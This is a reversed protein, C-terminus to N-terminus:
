NRLTPLQNANLADAIENANSVALEPTKGFGAAFIAKRKGETAVYCRYLAKDEDLLAEKAAYYKKM